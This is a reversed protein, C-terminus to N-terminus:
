VSSIGFRKAFEVMVSGLLEDLRAKVEKEIGAPVGYYAGAVGGAICALTDSDGGLSVANRVADEFGDAYLFSSLAAPVTGQCTVDFVYTPRLMDPTASLDYGFESEVYDRIRSKDERM